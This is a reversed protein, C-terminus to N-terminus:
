KKEKRKRGKRKRRFTHLGRLRNEVGHLGERKSLEDMRIAKVVALMQFVGADTGEAQEKYLRTGHKWSSM